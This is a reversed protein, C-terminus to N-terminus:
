EVMKSDLLEQLRTKYESFELGEATVFDRVTSGRPGMSLGLIGEIELQTLGWRLLEDFTTKGKVAIDEDDHEEAAIGETETRRVQSLQVSIARLTELDTDSVKERLIAVATSPLRSSAEATYPLGTYKAVFLRVSDTGIEGGDPTEGYFEELYKVQFGAPDDTEQIAFAKALVDATVMFAAEIDGFTYSGRIDAPNYEGEFEGETYRVPIKTSETRWLNFAMSLGIGIIFMLAVVVAILTSNVRLSRM